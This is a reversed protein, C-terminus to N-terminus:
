RGLSRTGLSVDPLKVPQWVSVSRLPPAKQRLRDSQVSVSGVMRFRAGPTPKSDVVEQDTFIAM